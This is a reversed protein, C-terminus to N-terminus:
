SDSEQLPPHPLCLWCPCIGATYSKVLKESSLVSPARLGEALEVYKDPKPVPDCQMWVIQGLAPHGPTSPQGESSQSYPKPGPCPCCNLAEVM